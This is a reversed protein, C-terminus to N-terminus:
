MALVRPIMIITTALKMDLESLVWHRPNYPMIIIENDKGTSLWDAISRNADDINKSKGKPNILLIVVPELFLNWSRKKAVWVDYRFHENEFQVKTSNIRLVKGDVMIVNM